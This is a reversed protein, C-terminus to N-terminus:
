LTGLSLTCQSAMSRQVLSEIDGIKLNIRYWSNSRSDDHRRNALILDRRRLFMHIKHGFSHFPMKPFMPFRAAATRTDLTHSFRKHLHCCKRLIVTLCASHITRCIDDSSLSLRLYTRQICMKTTTQDNSM